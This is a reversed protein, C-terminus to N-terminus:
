KVAMCEMEILWAPRCVPALLLVRPITPFRQEFISDVLPADALDRLYVLIHAVDGFSCDAEALLAEVNQLMRETQAQINGPFVVEGRNNISATGSVFVQRRGPLEVATAREFAVGYESTPNLYEPAKLYNINQQQVGAYSVSDLSVLSRSDAVSGNIGTSAIFHTQATLGLQSFAQNRGAVVGAYNTDVDRVFLWTRLCSDALSAGRRGLRSDLEFLMTRTASESDAAVTEGAQLIMTLEGDPLSWLGDAGLQPAADSRMWVWAAVKEGGLPPQQIISVACDPAAAKVADAQNAADSVFYRVMLPPLPLSRLEANVARLQSDFTQGAEPRIIAHAERRGDSFDFTRLSIM